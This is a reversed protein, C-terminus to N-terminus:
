VSGQWASVYTFDSVWVQNPRDARFRRPCSGAPVAGQRGARHQSCGQREGRRVPGAQLGGVTCRAVAIRERNLQKRVKNARVRWTANWVREVEPPESM